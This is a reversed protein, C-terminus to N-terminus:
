WSDAELTYHADVNLLASTDRDFEAKAHLRATSGGNTASPGTKLQAFINDVLLNEGVHLSAEQITWSRFIQSLCCSDCIDSM